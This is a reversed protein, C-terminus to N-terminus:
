HVQVYVDGIAFANPPQDSIEVLAGSFGTRQWIEADNTILVLRWQGVTPLEPAKAPSAEACGLALALAIAITQRRSCVDADDDAM